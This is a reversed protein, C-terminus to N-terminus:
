LMLMQLALDAAAEARDRQAALAGRHARAEGDLASRPLQHAPLAREVVDVLQERQPQRAQLEAVASPRFGRELLQLLRSAGRGVGVVLAQRLDHVARDAPQILDRAALRR